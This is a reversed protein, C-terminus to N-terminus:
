IEKGGAPATRQAGSVNSTGPYLFSDGKKIYRFRGCFECMLAAETPSRLEVLRHRGTLCRSAQRLFAVVPGGVRGVRAAFSGGSAVGLQM